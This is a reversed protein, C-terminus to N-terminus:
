VGGPHDFTPTEIGIATCFSELMTLIEFLGEASASILRCHENNPAEEYFLVAMTMVRLLAGAHWRIIGYREWAEQSIRGETYADEVMPQLRDLYEGVAITADKADQLEGAVLATTYIPLLVVLLIALPLM